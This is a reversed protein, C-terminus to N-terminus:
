RYSQWMQQRISTSVPTGPALGTFNDVMTALPYDTSFLHGTIFYYSRQLVAVVYLTNHVGLSREESCINFNYIVGKTNL